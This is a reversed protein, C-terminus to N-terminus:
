FKDELLRLIFLSIIDDRAKEGVIGDLYLTQEMSEFVQKIKTKKIEVENIKEAEEVKVVEEVEVVEINKLKNELKDTKEITEEVKIKIEDVEKKTNAVDKELKQIINGTTIPKADCPIKRNMHVTLTHKKGFHRGCKECKYIKM